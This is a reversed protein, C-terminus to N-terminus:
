YRLVTVYVGCVRQTRENTLVDSRVGIFIFYQLFLHESINSQPFFRIFQKIRGQTNSHHSVCRVCDVRYTYQM